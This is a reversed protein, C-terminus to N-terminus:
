RYLRLQRELEAIRTDKEALVLRFEEVTEPEHYGTADCRGLCTMSDDRQTELDCCNCRPCLERMM